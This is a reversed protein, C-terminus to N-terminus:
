GCDDVGIVDVSSEAVDDGGCNASDTSRSSTLRAENVWMFDTSLGSSIYTAHSIQIIKKDNKLKLLQSQKAPVQISM